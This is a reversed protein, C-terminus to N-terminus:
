GRVPAVFHRVVPRDPAVHFAHAVAQLDADSRTVREHQRQHELWSGVLFYELYRGPETTDEFLGWAHAGDRRREGELADMATVFAAASAPEIRYEVTVLVPGRDHTVTEDVVPAPWHASPAHDLTEGQGLKWRFTLPIVAVAGAAAIVLAAPIGLHAAAQGWVLSGASMAGFFVTVFVSLGRARVWDPLATQASVNLSSLVAIWSAGAVLSMAGAAYPDRVLAFVLLTAATGLTGAAVLRDPGLVANLRPLLVAGSVAGFGVCGLLVGYLMPGGGLLDRAILPLMAWYANAFLFFAVARVLTARMPGSARVYRLGARLAGVFQEPPLTRAAAAPPHWWILAAVVVIFSLTNLFFPAWIGVAAIVVGALAPGIARSVNIGVSNLAVAPRLDRREVLKPVIAQWAPAVFAACSGMVFTFCLLTLPTVRGALVLLGLTGATVIMVAQVVILLRRRDVIDALAGAPLSFLFVPLTTATQVLAVMFPSPSLSTMLWGAAVDHMWTGINSIVTATWLVTFATYRFPALAGTSAGTAAGDAAAPKASGDM